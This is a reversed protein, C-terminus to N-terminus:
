WTLASSVVAGGETPTIAVSSSSGRMDLLFLVASATIALGGTAFGVIALINARKGRQDYDDLVSGSCPNTLTCAALANDRQDALYGADWLFFGGVAIAAAGTAALGIALGRHGGRTGGGLEEPQRIPASTATAQQVTVAIPTLAPKDAVDITQETRELGPGSVVITHRGADIEVRGFSTSAVTVGDILVLAGPPLPASPALKITPVKTVLTTTQQKAANETETQGREAARLQAERFWKLATAVKNQRLNCLGLNLLVGPAGPRAELAAQFKACAGVADGKDLLAVGEQFLESSPDAQAATALAAILLASSMIKKM